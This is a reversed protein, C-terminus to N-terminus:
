GHEQIRMEEIQLKHHEVGPDATAQLYAYIGLGVLIILTIAAILTLLVNRAGPGVDVRIHHEKRAAAPDVVEPAPEIAQAEALKPSLIVPAAPVITMERIPPAPKAEVPVPAPASVSVPTRSEPPAVYPVIEVPDALPASIARRPEFAKERNPRAQPRLADAAIKRQRIAEVPLSHRFLESVANEFEPLAAIEEPIASTYYRIKGTSCDYFFRIAYAREDHRLIVPFFIQSAPTLPHDDTRMEPVWLNWEVDAWRFGAIAGEFTTLFRVVEAGRLLDKSNPRAV